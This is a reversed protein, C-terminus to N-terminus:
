KDSILIKGKYVAENKSSLTYFYLGPLLSGKKLEVRGSNINDHSLMIKGTQNYVRLTFTQKSQNPFEITTASASPSPYCIAENQM